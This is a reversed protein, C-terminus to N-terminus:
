LRHSPDFVLIFSFRTVDPQSHDFRRGEAAVSLGPLRELAQLLAKSRGVSGEGSMPAPGTRTLMRGAVGLRVPAGTPASIVVLRDLWAYEVQRLGEELAAFLTLWSTRLEAIAQYATIQQRCEAIRHLNARNHAAPERLPALARELMTAKQRAEACLQREHLIPPLLATVVLLAAALLWPQRRRFDVAARRGPPLLSLVPQGPLLQTAAAGILDIFALSPAVGAAPEEAFEMVGDVSLFDVPLGLRSTLAPGLGTLRATAGCLFIRAPMAAENRRSLNALTRAIEQTLRLTVDPPAATAQDLAATDPPGAGVAIGAPQQSEDNGGLPIIRAAVAETGIVLAAASRDGVNLVLAVPAPAPYVLRYAAQTAWLSPLVLGPVFGAAEAIACLPEIVALKAAALMVEHVQDHTGVVAGAWVVESLAYPLNQEAAFRLIKEQQAPAARPTQILKILALHAPLVLVVPGSAPLRRRIAQLATRTGELWQAENDAPVPFNEQVWTDCRLRGRRVRFVGLATRSSGCDLIVTSLPIV